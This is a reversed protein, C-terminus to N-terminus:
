PPREFSVCVRAVIAAPSRKRKKKEEKKKKLTSSGTLRTNTDDSFGRAHTHDMVGAPACGIQQRIQTALAVHTSPSLNTHRM